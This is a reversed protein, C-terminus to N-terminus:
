PDSSIAAVHRVVLVMRPRTEEGFFCHWCLLFVNESKERLLPLLLEKREKRGGGAESEM